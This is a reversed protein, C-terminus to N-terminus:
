KSTLMGHAQTWDQAKQKAQTVQEVTMEQAVTPLLKKSAEFGGDAAMSLWMYALVPNKPVGKGAYYMAGLNHEAAPFHHKEAAEQFLRIAEANDQPVGQGDRYMVGLAYEARVHDQQAAEKFYKAAERYDQQVLKGTYYQYGLNFQATAFGGDAAQRFYTVAQEGSTKVGLGEAYIIGLANLADGEGHAAGKVLWERALDNNEPIDKAFLYMLGLQTQSFKFDQNAAKTMWQVALQNNKEVSQGTFYLWGLVYQAKADGKAAKEQVLPVMEPTINVSRAITRGTETLEDLVQCSGFQPLTCCLVLSWFCLGLAGSPSCANFRKKNDTMALSQIAADTISLESIYYRWKM